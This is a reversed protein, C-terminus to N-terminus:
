CLESSFPEMGYRIANDLKSIKREGTSRFSKYLKTHIISL